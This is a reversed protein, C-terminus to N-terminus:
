RYTVGTCGSFSALSGSLLPEHNGTVTIGDVDEFVLVPGTASMSSTNNTFVINQRRDVKVNSSLTGGTVTNDTVTVDRILSGPSGSAAFLYWTNVDVRSSGYSTITNDRFTINTGGGSAVFPEIDLVHRSLRDFTVREITVHAGATIAVGQRGNLQCTSDHFWVGDSWGSGNQDIFLCDGWVNSIFVDSIEVNTAHYLGVGAQYECSPNFSSATGAGSNDGVIKFDHITIRDDDDLGFGSHNSSCGSIRFTAGNGEFVLNRRSRLILGLDLRYTAGTKFV